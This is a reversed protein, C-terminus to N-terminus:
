PEYRSYREVDERSCNHMSVLWDKYSSQIEGPDAPARWTDMWDIIEPIDVTMFDKVDKYCVVADPSSMGSPIFGSRKQAILLAGFSYSYLELGGYSKTFRYEIKCRCYEAHFNAWIEKLKPPRAVPRVAFTVLQNIRQIEKRANDCLLELETDNNATGIHKIRM